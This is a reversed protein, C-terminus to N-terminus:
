NKKTMENDIIGGQIIWCRILLVESEDLNKKGNTYSPPMMGTKVYKWLKGSIALDKLATMDYFDGHDSGKHHCHGLWPEACASVLLPKVHESFVAPFPKCTDQRERVMVSDTRPVYKEKRCTNLLFMFLVASFLLFDNIKKQPHM